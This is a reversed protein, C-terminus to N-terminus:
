YKVAFLKSLQIIEKDVSKRVILPKKKILKPQKAPIQEIHKENCLTYEYTDNNCLENTSIQQFLKYIEQIHKKDLLALNVFKGNKNETTPIDNIRMYNYIIHHKNEYKPFLDRIHRRLKNIDSFLIENKDM